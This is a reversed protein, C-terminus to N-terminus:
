HKKANTSMKLNTMTSMQSQTSGITSIEEYLRNITVQYHRIAEHRKIKLTPTLLGYVDLGYPELYLNSILEYYSLNHEVGHSNLESMVASRVMTDICLMQHSPMAGEKIIKKKTLFVRLFEPDLVVIAVLSGRGSDGYVFAQTVLDSDCYVYELREPEIIHGTNLRFINCKRDIIKLRGLDDFMGLDGTRFWGDSSLVEATLEPQRYYGRFVNAGRVLIEGRPYPKDYVTYGLEKVSVLKVMNPPYPTGVCGTSTDDHTTSSAPGCTETLGYGENVDCSFTCKLFAMAEHSISSSGSIILRVRGGLTESLPRFIVHDWLWHSSNGLKINRLKAKVAHRFISGALGGKGKIAHMTKDQVRNIFKPVGIIVTPKIASLDELLQEPMTRPFVTKCGVALMLHMVLRGLIHSMPIISVSCDKVSLQTLDKNEMMFKTGAISSIINGHTLVVGKPMDTTGSTFVITAVDDYTPQKFKGDPTQQGYAEVDALKFVQFGREILKDVMSQHPVQMLVINKVKPIRDRMEMLKKACAITAFVTTVGTLNMIYESHARSVTEHIAVSVYGQYYTAFEVLVWEFVNGSFLGINDGPRMGLGRLGRSLNRFRDHFEGYTVHKIDAPAHGTKTEERYGFIQVDPGGAKKMGQVFNDYVTAMSDAGFLLQNNVANRNLVPLTEDHIDPSNPVPLSYVCRRQM